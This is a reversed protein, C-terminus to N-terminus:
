KIIEKVVRLWNKNAIKEIQESNYGAKELALIVMPLGSADKLEDPVQAGDFDSGLAVHDIGVTNVMQDIHHIILEIPTDTQSKGDSRLFGVYFNVGILGGTDAIRKLQENTYNRPSHALEWACGHSIVVPKSSIDLVDVIGKANLHSVDVVIGLENCKAVLDGGAQTLGPGSDNSTGFEFGVGSGFANERSWTIGISRLGKSYWQEIDSLDPSVPEAGEFHLFAALSDNEMATLLQSYSKCFTLKGSSVSEINVFLDIYRSAKEQALEYSVTKKGEEAEIFVAFFGGALGGAKAKGLDIHLDTTGNIFEGVSNSSNFFESTITDNHGDFIKLSKEM